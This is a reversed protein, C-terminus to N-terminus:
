RRPLRGVHAALRALRLPLADAARGAGRQLGSDAAADVAAEIDVLKIGRLFAALEDAADEPATPVIGMAPPAGQLAQLLALKDGGCQLGLLESALHLGMLAQDPPGRLSDRLAAVTLSPDGEAAALAADLDRLPPAIRRQTRSVRASHETACHIFDATSHTHM